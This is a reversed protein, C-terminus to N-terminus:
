GAVTPGRSPSWHRAASFHTSSTAKQQSRPSQVRLRVLSTAHAIAGVPSEAGSNRAPRPEPISRWNASCGSRITAPPTPASRWGSAIPATRAPGGRPALGGAGRTPTMGYDAASVSRRTVRVLPEASAKSVVCGATTSARRAADRGDVRSPELHALAGNASIPLEDSAAFCDASLRRASSHDAHHPDCAIPRESSGGPDLGAVITEMGPDNTLKAWRRRVKATLPSM